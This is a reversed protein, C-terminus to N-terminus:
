GVCGCRGDIFRLTLSDADSPTKPRLLAVSFCDSEGFSWSLEDAEDGRGITVLPCASAASSGLAFPSAVTAPSLRAATEKALRQADKPEHDCWLNVLLTARASRKRSSRSTRFVDRLEVPAAHLLSGDFCIHKGNVPLSLHASNVLSVGGAMIEAERCGELIVTPAESGGAELYTVTGLLPHRLEGRARAEYDADWHWAVDDEGDMWLTWWEAGKLDVQLRERHWLLIEQVLQELACSATASEPFWYTSGASESEEELLRKATFVKRCDKM